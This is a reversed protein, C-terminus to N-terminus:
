KNHDKEYRLVAEKTTLWNRKIKIAELKGEKALKGLYAQSYNTYKRAEGLSIWNEKEASPTLVDLYINLSRLVAQAVFTVLPKYRGYDAEALARYYKQRDNKQIITLPFGYQMLFINMLLRGVRGNGDQFPHIHVFKHHFLTAFDVVYMKRYNKRAWDVLEQMKYPVDIASPPVHDTGSIFVDIKRYQGAITPDIEQIVLSHLSRILHESITHASGHEILEYLYDLAEKHNKAELHDKLSKGKVTIGQQIVWYTEKLTLTNGEIANSNYAMEIQFREKLKTLLTSSIPRLKNLQKLREELTKELVKPIFM